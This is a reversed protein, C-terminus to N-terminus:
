HQYCRGSPNNTRRKCRSGSKTIGTCQVSSSSSESPKNSQSKNEEVSSKSTNYGSTQGEHHYCYGSTNLTKNKCRVGSKTIGNCQVSESAKNETKAVTTKSNNWSWCKVCLTKEILVEQYGM